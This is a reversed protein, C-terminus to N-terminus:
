LAPCGASVEEVFAESLEISRARVDAIDVRDWVDLAADLAVLGLVVTVISVVGAFIPRKIFFLSFM